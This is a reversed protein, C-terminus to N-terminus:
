INLVNSVGSNGFSNIGTVRYYNDGSLPSTDIYLPKLLNTDTVLDSWSSGNASREIKFSASDFGPRWKIIITSGERRIIQMIPDDPIAVTTSSGLNQNPVDDIDSFDSAGKINTIQINNNILSSTYGLGRDLGLPYNLIQVVLLNLGYVYSGTLNHARNIELTSESVTNTGVRTFTITQIDGNIDFGEETDDGYLDSVNVDSCFQIDVTTNKFNTTVPSNGYYIDNCTLNTSGISFVTNHLKEGNVNKITCGDAEFVLVGNMFTPELNDQNGNITGKFDFLINDTNIYFIISRDKSSFNFENVDVFTDDAIVTAQYDSITNNTVNIRDTVLYTGSPFLITKNNSSNDYAMQIAVTDDTIGDGIAGFAKVSITTRVYLLLDLM